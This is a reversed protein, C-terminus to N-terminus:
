DLKLKLGDYGLKVHSPLLKSVEGHLGMRHSIHTLYAREPRVADIVELAQALTFHSIHDEQQLANIVLVKSGKIKEMEELSIYNADTIYTFDKIRFGLVPLKYHLVEIPTFLTNEIVFPSNDIQNTAIQPVGPYGKNVFVYSFEQKLQELVKKRAYVPIDAQQKFNFARVDDMGATHDKHEHTFILADLREIGERLM